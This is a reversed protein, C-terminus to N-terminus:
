EEYYQCIPKISKTSDLLMLKITDYKESFLKTKEIATPSSVEIFKTETLKGDKYAAVAFVCPTKIYEAKVTEGDCFVAAKPMSNTYSNKGSRYVTQGSLSPLSGINQYWVQTGDYVGNNLRWVAEGNKWNEVFVATHQASPSGGYPVTGCTCFNNRINASANKVTGIIAGSTATGSYWCNELAGFNRNNIYGSIGGVYGGSKGSVNGTGGCNYVTVANNAYGLIGGVCDWANPLNISGNFICNKVTLTGGLGQSSGVIGGVHHAAGNDEIYVTSTIGSIVTDGKAVAAVGGVHTIGAQIRIAGNVTFNKITAGSAVGFVGLNDITQKFVLNIVNGQGDFVGGYPNETTGIPTYAGLKHLQINNKLVANIKTNGGNVAGAFWALEKETTIEYANNVFNPATGEYGCVTCKGDSGYIHANFVNESSYVAGYTNREQKSCARRHGEEEATWESWTHTHVFKCIDCISTNDTQTMYTHGGFTGPISKHCITCIISHSYESTTYTDGSHGGYKYPVACIDCAVDQKCSGTQVSSHPTYDKRADCYLCSNWHGKDNASIKDIWNNHVHVAGCGKCKSDAGFNHPAFDKKGSCSSDSCAYWHYDGDSALSKQWIHVHGNTNEKYGCSTCIGTDKYFSHPSYGELERPDTVTCGDNKCPRYHYLSDAAKYSSNSTDYKHVHAALYATDEKVSPDDELSAGAAFKTYGKVVSNGSSANVSIKGSLKSVYVPATNSDQDTQLVLCDTSDSPSFEATVTPYSIYGPALYLKYYNLKISEARKIVIFIRKDVNKQGPITASITIKGPKIAKVKGANTVTAISTDSSSFKTATGLVSYVTYTEGALMYAAHNEVYPDKVELTAFAKVGFVSCMFCMCIFIRVIFRKSVM